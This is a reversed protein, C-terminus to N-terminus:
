TELGKSEAKTQSRLVSSTDGKQIVYVDETVWSASFFPLHNIIIM